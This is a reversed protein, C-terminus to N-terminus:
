LLHLARRQARALYHDANGIRADAPSVLHDVHAQVGARTGRQDHGVLKGACDDLGIIGAVPRAHRHDDIGQKVTADAGGTSSAELVNALMQPQHTDVAIATQRLEASHRGVRHAQDRHAQRKDLRREDLRQGNGHVRHM